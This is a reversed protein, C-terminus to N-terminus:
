RRGEPWPFGLAEAHERSGGRVEAFTKPDTTELRTLAATARAEPSTDDDPLSWVFQLWPGDRDQKGEAFGPRFTFSLVTTDPDHYDTGVWGFRADWRTLLEPRDRLGAALLRATIRAPWAWSHDNEARAIEADYAPADFRYAPLEPQGRRGSQTRRWDRWVVHDGDRQVTVYLAGCCGETCYAEALQVERPEATARLRGGDLLEEPANGPGLGFAEPVVPRGDVLFRTEAVDPDAPDRVAVEVRLRPADATSHGFPQRATRRIWRARRLETPDDPEHDAVAVWAPSHLLSELDALLAERRGPPWPLLHSPGSHLDLALSLLSACHDLTPPLLAARAVVAEYAIVADEYSLIEPRYDRQSTMWSLLWAAEALVGVDVPDERLVDALRVAEAIRRVTEPGVVRPNRPITMLRARTAEDDGSALADVLPRLERDKVHVALWVLAATARDLPALAEVACGTFDRLLGLTRLYPIDEPEGLRALLGIGLCVAVGSTGTRSLRRGLARAAAEDELPLDALAWRIHHDRVGVEDLRRQVEDAAHVTDPDTLFPTIADVTTQRANRRDLPSRQRSTRDPSPYGRVPLRGDPEARFLRLAHDYLSPRPTLADREDPASM